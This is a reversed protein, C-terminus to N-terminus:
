AASYEPAKKIKVHDKGSIAMNVKADPLDSFKPRAAPVQSAKVKAAGCCDLVAATGAEFTMEFAM